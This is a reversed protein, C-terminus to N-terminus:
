QQKGRTGAATTTEAPRSDSIEQSVAAAGASGRAGELVSIRRLLDSNQRELRVNREDAQIMHLTLEEIKALLKAQLDGISVGNRTVDSESPVDPLRGHERIYRAIGPLPMLRYGPKFVYDAWGTNTVVVEKAGITGNVALPYQPATTGIGIKGVNGAFLASAGSSTTISLLSPATASGSLSLQSGPSGTGIGVRGTTTVALLPNAGLDSDNYKLAFTGAGNLGQYWTTATNQIQIAVNSSSDTRQVILPIRSAAALRAASSGAGNM